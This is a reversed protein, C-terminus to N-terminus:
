SAHEEARTVIAADLGEARMAAEVRRVTSALLRVGGLYRRVTKTSVDARTAVRAVDASPIPCRM